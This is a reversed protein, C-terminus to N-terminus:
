WKKKSCSQCWFLKRKSRKGIVKTYKLGCYPCKAWIEKENRVILGIKEIALGLVVFNDNIRDVEKKSYKFNKPPDVMVLEKGDEIILRDEAPIFKKEASEVIKRILELKKM